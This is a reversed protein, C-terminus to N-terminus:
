CHGDPEMVQRLESEGDGAIKIFRRGMEIAEEKSKVELIAFGAILEKSEAFPGDTVSIKGGASRVRAGGPLLGGTSVPVSKFSEEIFKGMEAMNARHSDAAKPDPTYISLFKM